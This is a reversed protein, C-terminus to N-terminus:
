RSIAREFLAVNRENGRVFTDAVPGLLPVVGSAADVAVVGLMLAVTRAPVGARAAEFVVYLSCVAGLASGAVPLVSFLPDLGVRVSTGPVRVAGDLLTALRRARRLGPPDSTM